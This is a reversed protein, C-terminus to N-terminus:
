QAASAALGRAVLASALAACSLGLARAAAALRNREDAPLLVVLAGEPAYSRYRVVTHATARSVGFLDALEALTAGHAYQRRLEDALTPTLKHKFPHERSNNSVSLTL